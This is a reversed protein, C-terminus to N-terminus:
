LDSRVVNSVKRMGRRALLRAMADNCWAQIQSCGESKAFARLQQWIRETTAGRGGLAIVHCVKTNPYQQFEVAGAFHPAGDEYGVLLTVSGKMMLLGLQMVTMDTRELSTDLWGNVVDWVDPVNEPNIAYLDL